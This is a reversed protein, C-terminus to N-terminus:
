STDRCETRHGTVSGYYEELLSRQWLSHVCTTNIRLDNRCLRVFQVLEVLQLRSRETVVATHDEGFAVAIRPLALVRELVLDLPLVM